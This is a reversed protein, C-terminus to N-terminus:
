LMAHETARVNALSYVYWPMCSPGHFQWEFGAPKSCVYKEHLRHFGPTPWWCTIKKM